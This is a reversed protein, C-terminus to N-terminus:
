SVGPRDILYLSSYIFLWAVDIFAWFIGVGVIMRRVGFPSRWLLTRALLISLLVIGIVMHTAHLGTLLFYFNFFLAAHSPDPGDYHWGGPLFPVVGELYDGHYELGKLALFTLGLLITLGLFLIVRRRKLREAYHDTLAMTLGSSLLVVTNVAELVWALGRSAPGFANPYLHHYLGFSTFIAGFLLTETVLFLWIGMQAADHQQELTEFHEFPTEAKVSGM